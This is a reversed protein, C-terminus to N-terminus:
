HAHGELEHALNVALERQSIVLAEQLLGDHVGAGADDDEPSLPGAFARLADAEATVIDDRMDAGTIHQARGHPLSGLQPLYGLLYHIGTAEDAILDHDTDHAVPQGGSVGPAAVDEIPEGAGNILGICEVADRVIETGVQVDNKVEIHGPLDHEFSDRRASHALHTAGVVNRVAVIRHRPDAVVAPAVDLLPGVVGGVRDVTPKIEVFLLGKRENLVVAVLVTEGDHVTDAVGVRNELAEGASNGSALGSRNSGGAPMTGTANIGHTLEALQRSRNGARGREDVVAISSEASPRGTPNSLEVTTLEDSQGGAMRPTGAAPKSEGVFLGLSGRPGDPGIARHDPASSRNCEDDSHSSAATDGQEWPAHRTKRPQNVPQVFEYSGVALSEWADCRETDFVGVFALREVTASNREARFTSMRRHPRGRSLDSGGTAAQSTGFTM